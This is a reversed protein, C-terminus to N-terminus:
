ASSGPQSRTLLSLASPPFQGSLQQVCALAPVDTKNAFITVIEAGPLAVLPKNVMDAPQSDRRMEAFRATILGTKRGSAPEGRFPRNCASNQAVSISAIPAISPSRASLGAATRGAIIPKSSIGTRLPLRILKGSDLLVGRQQSIVRHLHQNAPDGFEIM